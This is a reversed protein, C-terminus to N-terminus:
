FGWRQAKLFRRVLAFDQLDGHKLHELPTKGHFINERNPLQMWKDALGESYLINLTKFMSILFSIRRLRDEDLTQETDKKLSQFAENSTKGLLLRADEDRIKWLEMIKFFAHIADPSLRERTAPDSLDAKPVPEAPFRPRTLQVAELPSTVFSASRREYMPVVGLEGRMEFADLPLSSPLSLQQEQTVPM